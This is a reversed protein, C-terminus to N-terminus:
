YLCAGMLKETLAFHDNTMKETAKPQLLLYELKVSPFTKIGDVGFISWFSVHISTDGGVTGWMM